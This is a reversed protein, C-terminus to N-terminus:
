NLVGHQKKDFNSKGVNFKPISPICDVREAIDCNEDTEERVDPKSQSGGGM